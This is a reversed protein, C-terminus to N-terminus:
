TVILILLKMVIWAYIAALVDDLMIGLGGKVASDIFRIPFPKWIDFVRFLILGLIIWLWSVPAAIMTILYGSIEDWVIGPHDHVGVDKAAKHCLWVGVFNIILTIILYTNFSFDCIFLYIPVGAVTGWTGPAIPLAGSGFGFAMFHIPNRWVSRPVDHEKM